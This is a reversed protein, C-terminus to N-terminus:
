AIADTHSETHCYHVLHKNTFYQSTSYWLIDSNMLCHSNYDGFERSCPLHHTYISAPFQIANLRWDALYTPGCTYHHFLWGSLLYKNITYWIHWDTHVLHTMSVVTNVTNTKCKLFFIQKHFPGLFLYDKACKINNKILRVSTYAFLYRVLLASTKIHHHYNDTHIESHQFQTTLIIYLSRNSYQFPCRSQQSNTITSFSSSDQQRFTECQQM